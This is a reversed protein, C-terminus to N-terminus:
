FHHYLHPSMLAFRVKISKIAKKVDMNNESLVFSAQEKTITNSFQNVLIQAKADVMKQDTLSSRTPKRAFIDKEIGNSNVSSKPVPRSNPSATETVKKTPALGYKQRLLNVADDSAMLAINPQKPSKQPTTSPIHGYVGYNQTQIKSPQAMSTPNRNPPAASVVPAKSVVIKQQPTSNNSEITTYIQMPAPTSVTQTKVMEPKKSSTIDSNSVSTIPVNRPAVNSSTMTTMPKSVPIATVTATPPPAPKTLPPKAIQKSSPNLKTDTVTPNTARLNNIRSTPAVMPFTSPPSSKTPSEFTVWPDLNELKSNAMQESLFSVPSKETELELNKPPSQTKPTKDAKEDKKFWDFAETELKSFANPDLVKSSEQSVDTITVYNSKWNSSFPNTSSNIVKPNTPQLSTSTSPVCISSSPILNTSVSNTSVSNTSMSPQKTTSPVMPMMLGTSSPTIQSTMPTVGLSTMPQNSYPSSYYIPAPTGPASIPHLYSAQYPVVAAQEDILEQQLLQTNSTAQIQNQYTRNNMEASPISKVRDIFNVISEIHECDTQDKISKLIMKIPNVTSNWQKDGNCHLFTPDSQIENRFDHFYTIIM